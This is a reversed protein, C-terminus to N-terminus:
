VIGYKDRFISVWSYGTKELQDVVDQIYITKILPRLNSPVLNILVPILGRETIGDSKFFAPNRNDTLIVYYGNHEIAFLLERYFQYYISFPCIPSNDFVQSLGYKKMLDWYNRGKHSLYCLDPNSSPNLGDCEGADITSCGGFEAEVYKAEIFLSKGFKNKVVFDFSTPQQQRENFTERDSYEFFLESDQQIKVEPYPFLRSFFNFDQRMYPDGLLNFLMAQSSLGHHIYKHIPFPESNNEYEKSLRIIENYVSPLIINKSWDNSDSLIFPYESHVPYNQKRFWVSAIKNQKRRFDKFHTYNWM